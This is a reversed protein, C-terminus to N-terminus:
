ERHEKIIYKRGNSELLEKLETDIDASAKGTDIKVTPIVIGNDMNIDISLRVGKSRKFVMIAKALFVMDNVIANVKHEIMGDMMENDEM